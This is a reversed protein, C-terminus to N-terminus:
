FIILFMKKKFVTLIDESYYMNAQDNEYKFLGNLKEPTIDCM